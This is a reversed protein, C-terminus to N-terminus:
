CEDKAEEEGIEVEQRDSECGLYQRECGTM